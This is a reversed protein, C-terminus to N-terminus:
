LELSVGCTAGCSLIFWSIGRDHHSSAKRKRYPRSLLASDERLVAFSAQSGKPWEIPELLYGNCSWLLVSNKIGSSILGSEGPSGQICGSIGTVVLSSCPTEPCLGLHPRNARYQSSLLGCSGRAVRISVPCGHPWLLPERLEGDYNLFGAVVQPFCRPEGTM